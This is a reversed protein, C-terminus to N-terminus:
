RLFLEKADPHRVLWSQVYPCTAILKVKNAQAHAVAARVLDSAITGGRAAPPVFTHQLDLDGNPSAHYSLEADGAPTPVIFRHRDPTHTAPM